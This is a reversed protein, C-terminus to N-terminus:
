SKLCIKFFIINCLVRCTGVGGFEGQQDIKIVNEQNSALIQSTKVNAHNTEYHLTFFTLFMSYKRGAEDNITRPQEVHEM